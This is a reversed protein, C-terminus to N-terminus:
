RQAVSHWGAEEEDYGERVTEQEPPEPMPKPQVAGYMM